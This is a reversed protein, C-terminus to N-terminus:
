NILLMVHDKITARLSTYHPDPIEVVDHSYSPRIGVVLHRFRGATPFFGLGDMNPPIKCLMSLVALGRESQFVGFEFQKMCAQRTLLSHFDPFRPYKWNLSILEVRSSLYPCILLSWFVFTARRVDLSTWCAIEGSSAVSESTLQSHQSVNEFDKTVRAPWWFFHPRMGTM